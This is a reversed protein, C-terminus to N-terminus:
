AFVVSAAAETANYLWVIKFQYGSGTFNPSSKAASMQVM